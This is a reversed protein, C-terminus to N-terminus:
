SPARCSSPDPSPPQTALESGLHRDVFARWSGDRVMERLIEVIRECDARWRHALGIGYREESFTAGVLRVKGAYAADRAYGRLVADDTSVADVEGRVLLDVCDKYSRHGVLYEGTIRYHNELRGLSTSNVASCVSKRQDALDAVGRIDTDEARVLVDQGALLYPGAFAVKKKREDTISYSAVILDVQGNEILAERNESAVVEWEIEDAAFGLREAVYRAVDVDLGDRDIGSADTANGLGPEDIKTAVRLTSKDRLEPIDSGGACGGVAAIMAASTVLVSCTWAMHVRRGAGDPAGTLSAM